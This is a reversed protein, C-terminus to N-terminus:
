SVTVPGAAVKGTANNAPTGDSNSIEIWGTQGATLASGTLTTVSFTGTADTTAGTGGTKRSGQASFTVSDWWSWYLGTLNAIAVNAADTLIISITPVFAAAGFGRTPLKNVGGGFSGFGRCVITEIAM